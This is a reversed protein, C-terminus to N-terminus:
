IGLFRKANEWAAKGVEEASVGRLEGIKEASLLINEPTNRKRSHDPDMFPSDTELLMSELPIATATKRIAKSFIVNTNISVFFGEKVIEMALDRPGTYCHFTAKLGTGKIIEFAEREAEWSHIVIPKHLEKALEIFHSFVEKQREQKELDKEWHFDLGVEGIALIKDRNKRILEIVKGFDDGSEGGRIYKDSTLNIPHYGISAFLFGPNKKVLELVKVGEELRASSVLVGKIKKRAEEVVKDRDGDFAEWCLHAHTDFM